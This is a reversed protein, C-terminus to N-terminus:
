DNSNFCDLDFGILLVSCLGFVFWFVFPLGVVLRDFLCGGVVIWVLLGAFGCAFFGVFM